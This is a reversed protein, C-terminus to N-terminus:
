ARWRLHQIIGLVRQGLRLILAKPYFILKFFGARTFIKVNEMDAKFNEQNIKTYIRQIHTHEKVIHTQMERRYKEKCSDLEPAFGDM